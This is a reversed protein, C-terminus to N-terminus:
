AGEEPFPLYGRRGLFSLVWGWGVCGGVVLAERAVVSMATEYFMVVVGAVIAVPVAVALFSAAARQGKVAMEALKERSPLVDELRAPKSRLVILMFLAKLIGKGLRHFAIAQLRAMWLGYGLFFVLVFPVCLFARAGEGLGAMTAGVAWGIAPGGFFAAVLVPIQVGLPQPRYLWGAGTEMAGKSVDAM